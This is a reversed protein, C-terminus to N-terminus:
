GLDNLEVDSLYFRNQTTSSSSTTSLETKKRFKVKSLMDKAESIRSKDMQNLNNNGELSVLEDLYGWGRLRDREVATGDVYLKGLSLLAWTKNQKAAEIYVALIQSQAFNFSREPLTQIKYRAEVDGLQASQELLELGRLLNKEVGRGELHLMGLNYLARPDNQEARKQYFRLITSDDDGYDNHYGNNARPLGEKYADEYYARAAAYDRVDGQNNEQMKKLKVRADKYGLEAARRFCDIAADSDQPVGLEDLYMLGLNYLALPNGLAASQRVLKIAETHNTAVGKGEYYIHGLNNIASRYGLAAADRYYKLAAAYDKPVGQAYEYMFGLQSMARASGLAAAEKLKEVATASNQQVGHGGEYMLGLYLLAEPVGQKVAAQFHKLAVDYDPKTGCGWFYIKGLECGAEPVEGALAIEFCVKAAEYHTLGDYDDPQGYGLVYMKGLECQGYPTQLAAEKFLAIAKAYNMPVGVGLAYLKGLGLLAWPANKEAEAKYCAVVETSNTDSKNTLLRTLQHKAERDHLLAARELYELARALNKEVGRGELHLMGLNYIARPDNQEARKQYFRLITSDDDGYDNHYGENVRPLGEKYADEYYARAAAYDRVDGQNNEQMKKLEVWADKYGLEAARRFCDIAADIDHPVGQGHRYRLGLNYLATPSGLAASQRFLKIAKAHNTDVGKGQFYMTGLNNIADRHGLAAADRFYKLAAAYDQAVGQLHMYGLKNMARASGLAAAEKRKEVATASNQQVGQGQEYMWGLFLLAAPVGKDAAAKIHPFAQQFDKEVGCGFYYMKGLECQAEPVGNEMAQKFCEIAAAYHEQEQGYGLAYLKGLEYLAYPNNLKAAIKFLCIAGTFSKVVGLGLAYLKGMGVMAWPENNNVAAEYCAVLEALKIDTQHNFLRTLQSKAEWDHLQAAKELNELALPLNKQVGNGELYLMGLNYFAHPDGKQVRLKYTALEQSYDAGYDNELRPLNKDIPAPAINGDVVLGREFLKDMEVQATVSGRNKAKELYDLAVQYNNKEQYDQEQGYGLAHMKGLECFAEAEGLKAALNFQEIARAYNKPVGMGGHAYLKGLELHARQDGQEAAKNLWFFAQEENREVGRGEKLRIGVQYQAEPDHHDEAVALYGHYAAKLKNSSAHKAATDLATKIQTAREIKQSEKLADLKAYHQAYAATVPSQYPDM